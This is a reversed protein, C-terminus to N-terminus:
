EKGRELIEKVQKNFMEFMDWYQHHLYDSGSELKECKCCGIFSDLKKIVEDRNTELQNVKAQLEKNQRIIQSFVYEDMQKAYRKAIDGLVNIEKDTEEVELIIEKRNMVVM